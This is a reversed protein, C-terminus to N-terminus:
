QRGRGKVIASSRRPEEHKGASERERDESQAAVDDNQGSETGM